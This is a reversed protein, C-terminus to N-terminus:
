LWKCTGSGNSMGTEADMLLYEVLEGCDSGTSSEIQLWSNPVQREENVESPEAAVEDATKPKEFLKFQGLQANSSGNISLIDLVFKHSFFENEGYNVQWEKWTWRDSGWKADESDGTEQILIQEGADNVAFFKWRCPDREPCDNASKMAFGSLRVPESSTFTLLGSSATSLWKSTGNDNHEREELLFEVKEGCQDGASSTVRLQEYPVM